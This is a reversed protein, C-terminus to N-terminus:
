LFWMKNGLRGMGASDLGVRIGHQTNWRKVMTTFM